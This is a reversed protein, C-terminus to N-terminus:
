VGDDALAGRVLGIAPKGRKKSRKRNSMKKGNKKSWALAERRLESLVEEGAGGGSDHACFYEICCLSCANRVRETAQAPRTASRACAAGVSCARKFM